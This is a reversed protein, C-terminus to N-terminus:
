QKREERWKKIRLIAFLVVMLALWWSASTRASTLLDIIRQQDASSVGSQNRYFIDIAWFISTAVRFLFFFTGAVLVDGIFELFKGKGPITDMPMSFCYGLAFLAFEGYDVIFGLNPDYFFQYATGIRAYYIGKYAGAFATIVSVLIFGGWFVWRSRTILVLFEAIRTNWSLNTGSSKSASPKKERHILGEFWDESKSRLERFRDRMSPKLEPLKSVQVNDGDEDEDVDADGADHDDEGVGAKGRIISVQDKKGFPLWGFLFGLIAKLLNRKEVSGQAATVTMGM